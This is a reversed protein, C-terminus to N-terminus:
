LLKLPSFAIRNLICPYCFSRVVEKKPSCLYSEKRTYSHNQFKFKPKYNLPLVVQSRIPGQLYLSTHGIAKPDERQWKPDGPSTCVSYVLEM